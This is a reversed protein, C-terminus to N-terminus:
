LRVPVGPCGAAKGQKRGTRRGEGAHLEESRRVGECNDRGWCAGNAYLPHIICSSFDHFISIFYVVFFPILFIYGWKAYSIGKKM